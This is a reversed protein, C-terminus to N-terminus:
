KTISLKDMIDRIHQRSCNCRNALENYTLQNNDNTFKGITTRLSPTRPIYIGLGGLNKMLKRTSDMGIVDILLKVDGPMDEYEIYDYVTKVAKRLISRCRGRPNDFQLKDQDRRDKESRIHERIREGGGEREDGIGRSRGFM